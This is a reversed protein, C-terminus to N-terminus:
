LWHNHSSTVSWASTQGGDGRVVAAKLLYFFPVNVCVCVSFWSLNLHPPPSPWTIPGSFMRTQLLSPLLPHPPKLVSEGSPDSIGGSVLLLHAFMFSYPQAVMLPKIHPFGATTSWTLNWVQQAEITELFNVVTNNRRILARPTLPM